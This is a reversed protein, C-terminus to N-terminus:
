GHCFFEMERARSLPQVDLLRRQRSGDLFQLHFQACLQEHAGASARPQRQRSLQQHLARGAHEQRQLLRALAHLSPGIAKV